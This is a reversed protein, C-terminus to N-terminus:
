LGNDSLIFYQEMNNLILKKIDIIPLLDPNVWNQRANSSFLLERSYFVTPFKTTACDTELFRSFIEDLSYQNNLSYVQELVKLWFITLTEHYGSSDTNQTGVSLNYDKIKIRLSFLANEFSKLTHLEYLAVAIHAFHTWEDKPLTKDQFKTATTKIDVM